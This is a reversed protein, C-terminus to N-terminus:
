AEPARTESVIWALYDPNGDSIPWAVVIAM